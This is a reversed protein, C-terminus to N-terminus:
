TKFIDLQPETALGYVKLLRLLHFIPNGACKPDESSKRLLNELVSSMTLVGRINNGKLSDFLEKAKKESKPVAPLVLFFQKEELLFSIEKGSWVSKHAEIQNRFFKMIRADNTLMDASFGTNGWGILSVIASSFKSLDGTFIRFSENQTDVPTASNFIEFFPFISKKKGSESSIEHVRVWFGNEEFYARVLDFEVNM